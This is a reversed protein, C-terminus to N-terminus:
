RALIAWLVLAIAVGITAAVLAVDARKAARRRFPNFGMPTISPPMVRGHDGTTSSASRQGSGATQQRRHAITLPANDSM